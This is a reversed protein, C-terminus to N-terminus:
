FDGANGIPEIPVAMAEFACDCNILDVLSALFPLAV